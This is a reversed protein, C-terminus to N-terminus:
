SRLAALIESEEPFRDGQQRKDFVKNGDATVVFDGRGGPKLEM